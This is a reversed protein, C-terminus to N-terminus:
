FVDNTNGYQVIVKVKEPGNYTKNLKKIKKQLTMIRSRVSYSYKVDDTPLIVLVESKAMIPNAFNLNKLTNNVSIELEDASENASANATGITTSIAGPTATASASNRVKFLLSGPRINGGPHIGCIVYM